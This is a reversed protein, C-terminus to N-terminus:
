LDDYVIIRSASTKDLFKIREQMAKTIHINSERDILMVFRINMDKAIKKWDKSGAVFIATAAADARGADSHIVTVSQSDQTPYGTRPDLIHHFRQGNYHYVREYDGSTFVSENNDVEVSAILSDDRPHKIGINVPRINKGNIYSGIVSLDGGANIVANEIGLQRLKEIEIQIAYGKAFAGFNLLVSSNNSTLQNNDSISLDSMQPNENVLSQIIKKNPPTLGSEQYRHFQWLNILKGIAPNYYHHSEKSLTISEKIIPLLHSPIDAPKNEAIKANIQALSGDTWPSWEQHYHDFDKQLQEFATNALDSDVDYLSVDILTGFAFISYNHPKNLGQCATLLVCSLIFSFYLTTHKIISSTTRHM